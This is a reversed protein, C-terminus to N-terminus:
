VYYTFFEIKHMSLLNECIWDCLLTNPRSKHIHVVISNTLPISYCIVTYAFFKVPFETLLKKTFQWIQNMLPSNILQYHWEKLM